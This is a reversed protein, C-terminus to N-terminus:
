KAAQAKPKRKRPAKPEKTAKALELAKDKKSKHILHIVPGKRVVYHGAALLQTLLNYRTKGGVIRIAETMTCGAPRSWLKALKASRCELRLNYQDFSNPQNAMTPIRVIYFLTDPVAGFVTHIM